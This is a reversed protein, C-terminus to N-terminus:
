KRAWAECPDKAPESRNGKNVRPFVGGRDLTRRRRNDLDFHQGISRQADPVKDHWVRRHVIAHRATGVFQHGLERVSWPDPGSQCDAPSRFLDALSRQSNANTRNKARLHHQATLRGPLRM